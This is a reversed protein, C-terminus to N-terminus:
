AETLRGPRLRRALLEVQLVHLPDLYTDRVALTQRLGARGDLLESVGLVDLVEARTRDDFANSVVFAAQACIVLLAGVVLVRVQVGTDRLRMRGLGLGVLLCTMYSLIPHSGTFLLHSIRGAAGSVGDVSTPTSPAYAPMVETMAQMLLPGVIWMLAACVFLATASLHLFPIALVLSVAYYILINDAPAGDPGTIGVLTASTSSGSCRDPAWSASVPTRNRALLWVM